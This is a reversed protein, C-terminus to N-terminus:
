NKVLHLYETDRVSINLTLTKYGIVPGIVRVYM